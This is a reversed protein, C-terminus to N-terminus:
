VIKVGVRDADSRPGKRQKDDLAPDLWEPILYRLAERLAPLHLSSQLRKAVALLLSGYFVSTERVCAVAIAVVIAVDPGAAAWPWTDETPNSKGRELCAAQVEMQGRARLVALLGDAVNREEQSWRDEECFGYRRLTQSFKALFRLEVRRRQRFGPKRKAERFAEWSPLDEELVLHEIHKVRTIAVYGQLEFSDELRRLVRRVRYFRVVCRFRWYPTVSGSTSLALHVLEYPITSLVDVPFRTTLNNIGSADALRHRGNAVRSQGKHSWAHRQPALVLQM